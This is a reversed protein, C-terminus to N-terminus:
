IDAERVIREQVGEIFDNRHAFEEFNNSYLHPGGSWGSGFYIYDGWNISVIHYLLSQATVSGGSTECGYAKMYIANDATMFSFRLQPNTPSDNTIEIVPQYQNRTSNYAALDDKFDQWALDRSVTSAGTLDPWKRTPTTTISTGDLSYCDETGQSIIESQPDGQPGKRVSYDTDNVGQPDDPDGTGAPTGPRLPDDITLQGTTGSPARRVVRMGLLPKEYTFTWVDTEGEEPDDMATNVRHLAPRCTFYGNLRIKAKYLTGGVSVDGGISDPWHGMRPDTSPLWVLKPHELHIDFEPTITYSNTVVGGTVLAPTPEGVQVTDLHFDQQDLELVYQPMGACTTAAVLTGDVVITVTGGCVDITANRPQGDAMVDSWVDGALEEIVSGTQEEIYDVLATVNEITPDANVADVLLLLNIWCESDEGEVGSGSPNEESGPGPITPLEPFVLDFSRVEGTPIQPLPPETM